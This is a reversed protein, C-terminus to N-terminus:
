DDKKGDIFEIRDVICSVYTKYIENGSKTKEDSKESRVSLQGNIFAASGKNFYKTIFDATGGFASCRIFTTEETQRNNIALTFSCGTKQEKKSGYTFTEPNAVLHGAITLQNVNLISM